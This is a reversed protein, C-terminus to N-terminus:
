DASAGSENGRFAELDSAKDTVWRLVKPNAGLMRAIRDKNFPEGGGRTKVVIENMVVNVWEALDLDGANLADTPRAQRILTDLKDAPIFRLTFHFESPGEKDYEFEREDVNPLMDAIKFM